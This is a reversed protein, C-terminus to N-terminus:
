IGNMLVPLDIVALLFTAEIQDIRVCNLPKIIYATNLCVNIISTGGISQPSRLLITRLGNENNRGNRPEM